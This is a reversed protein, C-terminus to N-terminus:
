SQPSREDENGGGRIILGIDWSESGHLYVRGVAACGGAGGDGYGDREEHGDPGEVEEDDFPSEAIEGWDGEGRETHDGSTEEHQRNGRNARAQRHKALVSGRCIFGDNRACGESRPVRGWRANNARHIGRRTRWESRM